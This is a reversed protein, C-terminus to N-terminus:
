KSLFLTCNKFLNKKTIFNNSKYRKKYQHKFLYGLNFLKYIEIRCIQNNELTNVKFIEKTLDIDTIDELFKCKINYMDKFENWINGDFHM